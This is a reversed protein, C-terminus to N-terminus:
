ITKEKDITHSINKHYLQPIDTGELKYYPFVLNFRTNTTQITYNLRIKIQGDLRDEPTSSIEVDNLRIRPEYKLVAARIIDKLFHLHTNTIPEFLFKTLQSGYDPLMVREGPNTNFLIELSQKIDEVDSVMEVGTHLDKHFTPPFSWGRGLFSTNHNDYRGM